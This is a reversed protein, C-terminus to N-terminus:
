VPVERLSSIGEVTLQEDTYNSMVIAKMPCSAGCTGCGKCAAPIVEAKLGRDGRKVVIAKYPCVSECIGCGICRDVDIQPTLVEAQVYGKKMLSGARSATALGQSVSETIDAPGKATGCVFIGDTAFDVPRLKVHAELFFGSPGLPVKLMQSVDKADEQPVLPTSLVVMDVALKREVKLTEHYYTVILQDGEKTVNPPRENRYRIFRVGSERARNYYLEHEVGYTTMTRNFVYVEVQHAIRREETSPPAGAPRRRRRRRRQMVEEPAHLDVPVSEIDDLQGLMENYNEVINLANKTAVNCCIRSCYSVKQGRSGVCQIFAISRVKSPVKKVRCMIEFETLTVVNDLMGYGYLGEPLYELAGTAVVISGVKVNKDEGNADITADFNGVFGDVNRVESSLLVDINENSMVDDILPQITEMTDGGGLYLNNLLRVFGGLEDEREVLYVPFGQNALSLAASMGSVGGGIVLAKPEVPNKLEEFPELLKVRAVGMRVLEKAKETAKEPEKMHVWSCQERINVFTFLYKNLGVEECTSQFLPGHTRPTCSAVVVRNLNHEKIGNQVAKLGDDACMYLDDEAHVVGPLTKAYEAVSPVDVVGGINSGCHCVFVGVRRETPLDVTQEEPSKEETEGAELAEETEETEENPAEESM